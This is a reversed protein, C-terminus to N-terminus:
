IRADRKIAELLQKYRELNVINQSHPNPEEGDHALEWIRENSIVADTEQIANDLLGDLWGNVMEIDANM